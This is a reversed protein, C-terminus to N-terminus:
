PNYEGVFDANVYWKLKTIDTNPQMSIVEHKTKLLYWFIWKIVLENARNSNVQFITCQHVTFKIDPRTNQCLYPM